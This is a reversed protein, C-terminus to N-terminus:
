KWGCSFVDFKVIANMTEQCGDAVCEPLEKFVDTFRIQFAGSAPLPFFTVKQYVKQHDRLCYPMEIECWCICTSLLPRSHSM